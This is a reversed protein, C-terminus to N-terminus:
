AHLSEKYNKLINKFKNVTDELSLESSGGAAHFHGGGKFNDRAFANAAFNGKSRFSMKVLKTRDIILVAFKVGDISLGYNVLGETDGTSVNYKLLENSDVVILATNLEKFVELKESICYGIFKVRNETFSDFVADGIELHNAGADMLEAAIRHTQSSCNSYKFSGTDMLIGTYLCSAIPQNILSSQGIDHIFRYILECTSSSKDDWYSYDEFGIPHQHHDILIKKSKSASVVDGYENIRSLDNFDLCFIFDADATLQKCLETSEEFNIVNESSPMWKLNNAFDTPSIVVADIKIQKLFHFLGMSSGMADADPKHHTTIVVKPSTKDKLLHFINLAIESLM